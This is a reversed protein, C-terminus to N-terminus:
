CAPTRVWGFTAMTDEDVAEISMDEPLILVVSGDSFLSALAELAPAVTTTDMTVPLRIVLVDSDFSVSSVDISAAIHDAVEPSIPTCTHTNM